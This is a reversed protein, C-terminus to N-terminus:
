LNFTLFSFLNNSQLSFLNFSYVMGKEIRSPQLESDDFELGPEHDCASLEDEDEEENTVLILDAISSTTLSRTPGANSKSLTVGDLKKKHRTILSKGAGKGAINTLNNSITSITKNLLNSSQSRSIGRAFLQGASEALNRSSISKKVGFRGISKFTVSCSGDAPKVLTRDDVPRVTDLDGAISVSSGTSSRSRSEGAIAVSKPETLHRSDCKSQTDALTIQAISIAESVLDLTPENQADLDPENTRIVSKEAEISQQNDKSSISMKIEAAKLDSTSLQETKTSDKKNSTSSKSQDNSMEIDADNIAFQITTEFNVDNSQSTNPLSHKISAIANDIQNINLSDTKTSKPKEDNEVNDVLSTDTVSILLEDSLSGTASDHMEPKSTNNNKDNSILTKPDFPVISSQDQVLMNQLHQKINLSKDSALDNGYGTLLDDSNWLFSFLHFSFNIALQFNWNNCDVFQRHCFLLWLSIITQILVTYCAPLHKSISKLM